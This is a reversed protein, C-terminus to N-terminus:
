IGHIKGSFVSLVGFLRQFSQTFFSEVLVSLFFYIFTFFLSRAILRFCIEIQNASLSWLIM